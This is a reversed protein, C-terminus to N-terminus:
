FFNPRDCYEMIMVHEDATEYHDYLKVVNEHSSCLQHLEIEDQAYQRLEPTVLMNKQIVKKIVEQDHDPDYM